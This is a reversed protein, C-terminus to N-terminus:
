MNFQTSLHRSLQAITDPLDQLYLLPSSSISLYCTLSLLYEDADANEDDPSATDLQIRASLPLRNPLKYDLRTCGVLPDKLAGNKSREPENKM